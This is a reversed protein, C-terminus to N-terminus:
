KSLALMATDNRRLSPRNRADISDFLDSHRDREHLSASRVAADHVQHPILKGIHQPPITTRGPSTIQASALPTDHDVPIRPPNSVLNSFFLFELNGRLRTYDHMTKRNQELRTLLEELFEQPVVVVGNADACIVDGPRVVIRRLM